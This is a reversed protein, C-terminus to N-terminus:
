GTPVPSYDIIASQVPVWVLLFFLIYGRWDRWQKALFERM